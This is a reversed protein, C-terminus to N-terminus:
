FRNTAPVCCEIFCVEAFGTPRDARDYTIEASKIAGIRSFLEKIDNNDVDEALNSIMLKSLKGQPQQQQLPAALVPPQRQQQQPRQMSQHPRSERDSGRFGDFAPRGRERRPQARM